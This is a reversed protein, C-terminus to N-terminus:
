LAYIEQLWRLHSETKLMPECERPWFKLGYGDYRGKRHYVVPKIMRAYRDETFGYQSTQVGFFFGSAVADAIQLGMQKAAYATIQDAKIVNWDIEVGFMGTQSKLVALYTRFEDYKMGGRNSFIIQASGDGDPEDPRGDRCYWSIRELLLRSAYFYLRNRQQFLEVNHISLKHIFVTVTRLDAQAIQHLFPLRHEQKLSRFHLPERDKRGLLNRVTDVLKVTELDNSKRTVVASLVFWRSSGKDFQFGEDGSEDIYVAYSASM